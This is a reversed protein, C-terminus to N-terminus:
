WGFFSKVRGVFNSFLSAKAFSKTTSKVAIRSTVQHTTIASNIQQKYASPNSIAKSVNGKVSNLNNLSNRYATGKAKIGEGGIAVSAAGVAAMKGANLAISGLDRNGNRVQSIVESTGSIAANGIIQGMYGLGTAALAGGAAGGLAALGINIVDIKGGTALQMGFEIGASIVAGIVAGSAITWFEGGADKRMVPNNDCYAYLNKDHLDSQMDLVNTTDPSIFRGVGPAYYRSSVYYFGTEADYFYGRYRFPNVAGLTTALSGITSLINGWADYRYEVVWEGDKNVLGVIDGQLNKVYYYEEGNNYLVAIPNGLSDYSFKLDLGTAKEQLLLTGAYVYTHKVGDVTKSVRMGNHDYTYSVTRGNGTTGALQRGNKWTFTRGNYSLLNGAGDYTLAQGDVSVLQDKWGSAYTFTRIEPTGSVTGATTYDYVKESTMNFGADYTYLITEDKLQDDVRILQGLVDYQYRNTYTVTNGNADKTIYVIQSINGDDHYSYNWTKGGQTITQIVPTSMGGEGTRYGFQSNFATM